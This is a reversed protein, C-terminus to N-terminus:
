AWSWDVLDVVTHIQLVRGMLGSRGALPVMRDVLGGPPPMQLMWERLGRRGAVQLTPVM